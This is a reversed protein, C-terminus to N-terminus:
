LGIGATMHSMYFTFRVALIGTMVLTVAAVSKRLSPALKGAAQLGEICCGACGLVVFGVVCPVAVPVRALAPGAANGLGALEVVQLGLVVVNAALAVVSVAVLVKGLRSGCPCLGAAQLTAFALLPGGVLGNLCLGVPVQWTNWTTITEYSYAVAMFAVFVAATAAIVVLWVRQVAVRPHQAFSYAWYLGAVGLFLVASAVENSLPSRGVGCMVYLANAPSGLHATSAVLGVITVAIPVCMFLNIRALAHADRSRRLAVLSLCLLAIAGSPALTTFLVLCIEEIAFSFGIAAMVCVRVFTVRICWTSLM